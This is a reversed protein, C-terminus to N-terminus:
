RRHVAPSPAAITLAVGTIPHVLGPLAVDALPILVFPRELLAPHPVKLARTDIVEAGYLLLDIDITRPAKPRDRPRVRGLLNEIELCNALVAAAPMNTEGRVVANLYAPQPDVAVAETEYIPSVCMDRLIRRGSLARLAAAIAAARDGLNSGLGLYVTRTRPFAVVTAM